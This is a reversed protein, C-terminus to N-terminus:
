STSDIISAQADDNEHSGGRPGKSKLAIPGDDHRNMAHVRKKGEHGKARVMKKRWTMVMTVGSSQKM